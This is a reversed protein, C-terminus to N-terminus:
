VFLTSIKMAAMIVAFFGGLVVAAGFSYLITNSVRGAYAPEVLEHPIDHGEWIQLTYRKIRNVIVLISPIAVLIIITTFILGFAISVAMPILFQAQLSKELILPMLGAITTVSTLIIPRFRSMAAAKLADYFKEGGAIRDNFTAILVIGDNIMVGILAIIGLGSFFSLQLGVLYHGIAVGLLAFPVIAFLILAQSWSNFTLIVVFFMLMLVVPMVFRASLATKAQERQQGEFGVKVSPYKALVRPIIDQQVKAAIETVSASSKAIDAEVRVERQGDIHNINIIGRDINLTAIKSLPAVKGTASRILMDELQNVNARQEEEYRVWVRVEDRNRQLRQVETGFFGQRVQSIVDRLNYGLNYAEPKLELKIENLGPQSNDLVDKLDPIARLEAKLDEVADNQETTNTSLLSISVPKGFPSGAFFTFNEAEYVPGVAERMRSIVQSVDLSGREEGDILTLELSAVNTAPGINKQINTVPNVKGDFFEQGLEDNVRMCVAEISDMIGKTINERTGSPMELNISFNDRPINPFFTTKVHGGNFLALSLFFFISLIFLTPFPFNVSFNLVPKYIVDKLFENIKDFFFNFRNKQHSKLANSHAIHAPLIFVGEILSFLLSFIVVAAMERFIDGIRGDLFFFASFAIVTTLVASIVSPIVEMAGEAAADVANMGAEYKQFINEAIVIGDDVLIGIVLIMGFLSIVNITIGIFSAALFMGAFSIPISLAVWFAVRYDLFIALFFLVLFFGMLGNSILLDIRQNLLISADAIIDAKVNTNKANYAEVYERVKAAVSLMDEQLTNNVTVVVSPKTNLYSRTPVDTWKDVITAVDELHIVGGNPNTKIVVKFLDVASYKKNEARILLEENKTKITGGTVELNYNRTANAVEAFTLNYKRLQEERVRIEIEEEPFGTITVKSIGDIALLEDEVKESIIKLTKLDVDGSLAFSVARGLNELKYIVLPELNAPYSSVREVANKVDSLIIDIDYGKLVEVTVSGGNESSVSSVREIGTLGKLQEEIKTIVGEEMESPSAGPYVARVTILRSETEPFFTTKMRTFGVFGIIFLFLMLLNSAIENKIFYKIVSKM